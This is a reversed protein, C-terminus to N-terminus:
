FIKSKDLKNYYVGWYILGNSFIIAYCKVVGLFNMLITTLQNSSTKTFFFHLVDFEATQISYQPGCIAESIDSVYIPM